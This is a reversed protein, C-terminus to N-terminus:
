AGEASLAKDYVPEFLRLDAVYSRKDVRLTCIRVSDAYRKNERVRAKESERNKRMCGVVWM